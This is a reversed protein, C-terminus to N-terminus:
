AGAPRAVVLVDKAQSGSTKRLVEAFAPDPVFDAFICM